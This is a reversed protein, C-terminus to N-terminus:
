TALNLMSMVKEPHDLFEQKRKEALQVKGDACLCVHYILEGIFTIATEREIPEAGLLRAFGSGVWLVRRGDTEQRYCVGFGEEGSPRM